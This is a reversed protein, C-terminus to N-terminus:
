PRARGQRTSSPDGVAKRGASSRGSSSTTTRRRSPFWRTSRAGRTGGTVVSADDYGHEGLELAVLVVAPRTEVQLPETIGVDRDAEFLRRVTRTIV